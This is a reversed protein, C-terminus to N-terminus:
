LTLSKDAGKRIILFSFLLFNQRLKFKNNSVLTEVNESNQLGLVTFVAILPNYMDHQLRHM